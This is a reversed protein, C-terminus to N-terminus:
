AGEVRKAKAKRQARRLRDAKELSRHMILMALHAVLEHYEPEDETFGSLAVSIASGKETVLSVKGGVGDM